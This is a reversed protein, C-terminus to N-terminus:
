WSKLPRGNPDAHPVEILEGWGFAARGANVEALTRVSGPRQLRFASRGDARDQRTVWYRGDPRTVIRRSDPDRPPDCVPPRPGSPDACDGRVLVRGATPERVYDARFGADRSEGLDAVRGALDPGGALSILRDGREIRPQDEWQVLRDG